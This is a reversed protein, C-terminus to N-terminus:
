RGHDRGAQITLAGDLDTRWVRCGAGHLRELVEQSPHGYLNNRGCSIVALKPRLVGLLKAGTAYRSGHHGVKLLTITRGRVAKEWAELFRTEGERELDGTLLIRSDAYTVLLVMSAANGGLEEWETKSFGGPWMCQLRMGACQLEDGQALFSAPIGKNEATGALERLTEDYEAAAGAMWLHETEIGGSLFQGTLSVCGEELMKRVGNVHDEDGHTLFIGSLTHIGYYKLTSEVRYNWVDEVSSSGCDVLFSHGGAQLLISDGQGVDLFDVQFQPPAHLILLATVAALAPLRWAAVIGRTRNHWFWNSDHKSEQRGVVAAALVLYFLVIKWWAPRGTIIVAGPLRNTFGALMMFLKLLYHCPAFLFIGAKVSVVAAIAACLGSLMVLPMLPIVILNTLVSWPSFQYFFACTVPLTGLLIGASMSLADFTVRMLERFMAYGTGFRHAKQRSRIMCPGPLSYSAAANRILRASEEGLRKVGPCVLAISLICGFSLYFGAERVNVPHALLVTVAAAAAATLPDNSRGLIQSGAWVLYMVMARCASVSMGTMFCYLIVVSGSLVACVPYSARRRRLVQFLGMGFISIHLGSVALIHSIGGDSFASRVEADLGSRDGLLMARITGADEGAAAHLIRAAHERVQDAIALPSPKGSVEQVSAKKMRYMVNGALDHSRSDFQGPNSPAPTCYLVGQLTVCQGRRIWRERQEFTEAAEGQLAVAQEEMGRAAGAQEQGDALKLTLRVKRNEQLVRDAGGFDAEGDEELLIELHDVLVTRGDGTWESRVVRGRVRAIREGGALLEGRLASVAKDPSAPLFSHGIAPLVCMMLFLFVACVCLMRQRCTRAIDEAVATIILRLRYSDQKPRQKTRIHKKQKCAKQKMM